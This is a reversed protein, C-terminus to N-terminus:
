GEAMAEARNRTSLVVVPTAVLVGLSWGALVDLPWHAGFYVRAFAVLLAAVGVATRAWPHRLNAILVVGLAAAIASHSSPFGPGSVDAPVDRHAIGAPPRPRDAVAKIITATLWAATGAVAAALAMSRSRMASAAAVVVIAGRTGLQMVAWLGLEIVGTLSWAWEAIEREVSTPQLGWICLVSM